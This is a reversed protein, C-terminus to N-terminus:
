LCSHWFFIIREAEKYIKDQEKSGFPKDGSEDDYMVKEAKEGFGYQINYYHSSTSCLINDLKKRGEMM